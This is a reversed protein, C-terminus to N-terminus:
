ASGDLAAADRDQNTDDDRPMKVVIRTIPIPGGAPGAHEYREKSSWRDPYRRALFDRAAKWDEPVKKQWEAVTRIEAEAEARTVADCFERYPGSTAEQGREIWRRFTMYTIGAYSCAAEYYNGASLARVLRTQVDPTLKSPRAM